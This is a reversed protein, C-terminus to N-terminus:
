VISATGDYARTDSWAELFHAEPLHWHCLRATEDEYVGLHIRLPAKEIAKVFPIDAPATLVPNASLIVLCEVDGRELAESLKILSEIRSEPRAEVPTTFEITAGVNKLHDNMAHALLHVPPPQRDGAIILSRGVHSELERAVAALWKQHKDRVAADVGTVGEVKLEAALARAIPEIDRSRVALRHDAKAGTCSVAMEVVYLQNMERSGAVEGELPARRRKM